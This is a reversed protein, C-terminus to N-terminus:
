AGTMHLACFSVFHPGPRVSCHPTSCLQQVQPRVCFTVELVSWEVLRILSWVIPLTILFVTGLNLRTHM